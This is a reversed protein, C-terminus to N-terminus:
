EGNLIRQEHFYAMYAAGGTAFLAALTGDALRWATFATLEGATVSGSGYITDMLTIITDAEIDAPAGFQATLTELKAAYAEASLVTYAQVLMDTGSVNRYVYYVNKGKLYFFTYGGLEKQNYDAESLGEAALMQDVTTDWTVGGRFSFAASGTATACLLLVLALAFATTKRYIANRTNM